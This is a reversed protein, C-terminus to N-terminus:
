RARLTVVVEGDVKLELSIIKKAMVNKKRSHSRSIYIFLDAFIGHFPLCQAIHEGCKYIYM